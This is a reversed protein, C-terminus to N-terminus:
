KVELCPVTWSISCNPARFDRCSNGSSAAIGSIQCPPIMENEPATDDFHFHFVPFACSHLVNLLVPSPQWARLPTWFAEDRGMEQWRWVLAARLFPLRTALLQLEDKGTLRSKNATPRRSGSCLCLLLVLVACFHNFIAVRRRWVRVATM